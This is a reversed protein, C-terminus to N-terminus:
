LERPDAVIEVSDQGDEGSEGNKRVRKSRSPNLVYLKRNEKRKERLIARRERKIRALETCHCEPCSLGNWMRGNEDEYRYDKGNEYQRGKFRKKEQNCVKCVRYTCDTVVKNLDM